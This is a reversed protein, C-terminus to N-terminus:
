KCFEELYKKASGYGNEAAKKWDECAGTLDNLGNFKTYGRNYYAQGFGPNLKLSQDFNQVAETYKEMQLLSVGKGNYFLHNRPDINIAADIDTIASSHDGMAAKTLGRNYYALPYKRDIRIAQTYDQIAEKHLGKIRKANGRNYYVAASRNGLRISRDYDVIAATYQNKAAKAIGRNYYATMYKPDLEIARDYDKLAGELDGTEKRLNGRGNYALPFLPNCEISTSFCKMANQPDRAETYHTGLWYWARERKPSKKVSDNWISYSTKWMNNRNLSAGAYVLTLLSLAAIPYTAKKLGLFYFVLYSVGLGFGATALYLRHEFIVDRIPIFSSEVSLTLYFWFIMFAPITWKKWVLIVAGALAALHFGLSLLERYGWLTSSVRWYYDLHQNVPLLLLQWYKVMVRLQTFFYNSRSIKDYEVPLGRQMFGYTVAGAVLLVLVIFFKRDVKDQANRIFLAEVLIFALPFTAANQKSLFGFIGAIIAGAYFAYPAWVPTPGEHLHAKRGKVYLFVSLIYFLGALVSMRQIIYTVAQTQIPHAVFIFAAFLAILVRYNELTKNNRFINLSLIELALLFLFYGALVHFLLNTVHYGTVDLQHIKYNVALTFFSFPRNNIQKWHRETLVNDINKIKKGEVIHYGDDFQFANEFSNAYALLGVLAILIVAYRKIAPQISRM